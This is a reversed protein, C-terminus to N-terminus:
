GPDQFEEGGVEFITPTWDIIAVDLGQPREDEVDVRLFTHRLDILLNLHTCSLQVHLRNRPAPM